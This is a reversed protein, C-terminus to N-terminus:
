ARGESRTQASMPIAGRIGQDSSKIQGALYAEAEARAGQRAAGDRYAPGVLRQQEARNGHNDGAFDPLFSAEKAETSRNKM